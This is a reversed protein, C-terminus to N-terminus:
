NENDKSPDQIDQSFYFSDEIFVSELRSYFLAVNHRIKSELKM